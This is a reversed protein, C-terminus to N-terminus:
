EDKFEQNRVQGVDMDHDQNFKKVVQLMERDAEASLIIAKRLTEIIKQQDNLAREFGQQQEAMTALINICKQPLHGRFEREIDVIFTSFINVM